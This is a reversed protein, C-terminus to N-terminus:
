LDSLFAFRAQKTPIGIEIAATEIKKREREGGYYSITWDVDDRLHKLMETFYPADVDALGHGFVYVELVDGLGTFFARNRQIIEATPKFTERFYDDILRYGGAVRTDTDEDIRDEWRDKAEPTWGHGLVIQSPADALSGHIHLVNAASYLTQITPTYNFNLFKARPDISRVPLLTQTPISLTDLWRVFNRHLGVSLARIVRDLEYEFDHHGSDSWDDAGYSPLFNSGYELLQDTDFHELAM